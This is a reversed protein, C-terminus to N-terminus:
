DCELERRFCTGVNMCLDASLGMGPDTLGSDSGDIFFVQRQNLHQSVSTLIAQDLGHHTVSFIAHSFEGTRLREVINGRDVPSDDLLFAYTFGHGYVSNREKKYSTYMWSRKPYDVVQPGLLSRMGHFLTCAMYDPYHTAETPSGVFLIKNVKNNTFSLLYQAMAETTLHAKVHAQLGQLLELYLTANFYKHNVLVADPLSESFAVNRVAEHDVGELKLVEELTKKPWRFMTSLPLLQADLMYPMCGNAIIELHRLCDWGGKKFTVGFLSIRYGRYYDEQTHYAYTSIKDPIIAAFNRSRQKVSVADIKALLHEKPIAFSIPFVVYSTNGSSFNCSAHAFEQTFGGDESGEALPHLMWLWIWVCVMGFVIGPFLCSLLQRRSNCNESKM